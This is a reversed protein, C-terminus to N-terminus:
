MSIFVSTPIRWKKRFMCAKLNKLTELRAEDESRGGTPFVVKFYNEDNKELDGYFYADIAVRLSHGNLNLQLTSADLDSYDLNKLSISYDSEVATIADYKVAVSFDYQPGYGKSKITISNDEYLYKDFTEAETLIQSIDMTIEFNNRLFSNKM